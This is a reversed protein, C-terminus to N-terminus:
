SSFLSVFDYTIFMPLNRKYIQLKNSDRLIIIIIIIIIIDTDVVHSVSQLV